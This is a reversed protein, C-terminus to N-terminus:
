QKSKLSEILQLAQNLADILQQRDSGPYTNAENLAERLLDQAQSDNDDGGIRATITGVKYLSVILTRQWVANSKDQEALRKDIALEQQFLDLADQLKGQANLVDGVKEYSVRSGAAM